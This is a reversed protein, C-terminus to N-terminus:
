INREETEKSGGTKQETTIRKKEKEQKRIGEKCKNKCKKRIKM